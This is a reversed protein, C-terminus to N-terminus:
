YWGREKNIRPVLSSITNYMFSDTRNLVGRSLVGFTGLTKGIDEKHLIDNM